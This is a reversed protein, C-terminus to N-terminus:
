LMSRALHPTRAPVFQMRAQVCVHMRARACVCVCVAQAGTLAVSTAASAPIWSRVKLREAADEPTGSDLGVLLLPTHMAIRGAAERWEPAASPAALQHLAVHLWLNRLLQLCAPTCVM